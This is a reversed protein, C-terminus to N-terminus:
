FGATKKYFEFNHEQITLNERWYGFVYNKKPGALSSAFELLSLQELVAAKTVPTRDGDM